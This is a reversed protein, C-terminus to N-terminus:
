GPEQRWRVAKALDRLCQTKRLIATGVLDTSQGSEREIQRLETLEALDNFTVALRQRLARTEAGKAEAHHGRM